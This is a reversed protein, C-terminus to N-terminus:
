QAVDRYTVPVWCGGAGARRLADCVEACRYGDAFTPLHAGQPVEGAIARLVQDLEHVFSDAWGLPHGRPYWYAMFPHAPDTVHRTQRGSGDIVELENLRAVSFRLSRRTGDLEVVSEVAPMDALRTAELTGTAGGDFALVAHVASETGCREESPPDSTVSAVREIEGVLYRALDIHHAALDGVVGGAAGADTVRWGAGRDDARPVLFRARFHLVNGLDGADVLERALRIAPFFRYNFGCVHVVDAREAAAWLGFAEDASPALPKECVVHRGHRIAVLTPEVHLDNPGVNDFLGVRDDAVQERWDTVAELWGYRKRSEELRVADRGGLSVLRPLLRAPWAVSGIARLARSHADGMFGHGLMAVGITGTRETPVRAM